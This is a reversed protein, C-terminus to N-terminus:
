VVGSVKLIVTIVFVVAFVILFLFVTAKLINRFGKWGSEFGQVYAIM